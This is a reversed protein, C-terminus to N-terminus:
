RKLPNAADSADAVKAMIPSELTLSLRVDGGRQGKAINLASIRATPMEKELQGILGIATIFDGEVAIINQFREGIFAKNKDKDKAAITAVRDLQSVLGESHQKNVRSFLARAKQPDNAEELKPLWIALYRRLPATDQKLRGLQMDQINRDNEAMHQAAEASERATNAASMKENMMLGGQICCIMLLALVLCAIHKNSM